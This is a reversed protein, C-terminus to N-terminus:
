VWHESGTPFKEEILNFDYIWKGFSCYIRIKSQLDKQM